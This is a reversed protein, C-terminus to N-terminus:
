PVKCSGLETYIAEVALKSTSNTVPHAALAKLKRFYFETSLNTLVDFTSLKLWRTDNPEPIDIFVLNQGALKLAELPLVTQDLRRSLGDICQVRMESIAKKLRSSNRNHSNFHSAYHDWNDRLLLLLDEVAHAKLFEFEPTLLEQENVLRPLTSVNLHSCMWHVFETEKGLKRVAEIYM